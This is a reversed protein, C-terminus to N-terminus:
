RIRRQVALPLGLDRARLDGASTGMLEFNFWNAVLIKLHGGRASSDVRHDNEEVSARGQRMGLSPHLAQLVHEEPTTETYAPATQAGM